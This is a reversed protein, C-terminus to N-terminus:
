SMTLSSKRMSITMSPSTFNITIMQSAFRKRIIKFLISSVLMFVHGMM